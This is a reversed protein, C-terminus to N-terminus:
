LQRSTNRIAVRRVRCFLSLGSLLLRKGAVKESFGTFKVPAEDSPSHEDDDNEVGDEM